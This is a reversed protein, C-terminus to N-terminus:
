TAELRKVLIRRGLGCHLTEQLDDALRGSRQTLVEACLAWVNSPSVDPSEPNQKSMVVMMDVGSLNPCHRGYVNRSHHGLEITGLASAPVLPLIMRPEVVFRQPRSHANPMILVGTVRILRRALRNSSFERM